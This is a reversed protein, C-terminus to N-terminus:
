ESWRDASRVKLYRHSYIYTCIGMLVKTILVRSYKHKEMWRIIYTYVAFSGPEVGVINAKTLLFFMKM